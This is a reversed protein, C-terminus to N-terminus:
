PASPAPTTHISWHSGNFTEFYDGEPSDSSVAWCHRKSSTEPSGNKRKKNPTTHIPTTHIPTTHIPTTHNPETYTPEAYTPETDNADTNAPM